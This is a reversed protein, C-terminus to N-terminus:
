ILYQCVMGHKVFDPLSDNTFIDVEFYEKCTMKLFM